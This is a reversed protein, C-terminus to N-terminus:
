QFLRLTDPLSIAEIGNDPSFSWPSMWAIMSNLEM